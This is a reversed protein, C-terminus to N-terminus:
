VGPKPKARAASIRPVYIDLGEAMRPDHQPYPPHAFYSTFFRWSVFGLM